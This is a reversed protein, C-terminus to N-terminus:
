TREYQFVARGTDSIRESRVLTARQALCQCFHAETYDAFIDERASLMHQVMPDTKPVFEIVGTPALSVLWDVAQPLPVNRGIVMHHLLALALLGQAQLRDQFSQRERGAWGQGPSPDLVDLFLPLFDLSQGDAAKVAEDLANLDLDTGIVRRAGAALATASYDGSNCGLDLLLEPRLAAVYAAVFTHKREAAQATYPAQTAYGGWTSRGVPSQLAAVCARMNGVLWVLASKTMPKGGASGAAGRASGSMRAHLYVHLQLRPSLRSSAPLLRAMENVPLGEAHGRYWAQFPVGVKAALLLPNLFQECFQRYGAWYSGQKYPRISLVDIFVPRTGRFQVNYASADCLTFDSNLLELQVDLHHLAARKLLAFPWEYPYSVFPLRPHELFLRDGAPLTALLDQPMDEAGIAQSDVLKGERALSRLLGSANLRAFDDRACTEITRFIRGHGQLVLGAPDRFSSPHTSM